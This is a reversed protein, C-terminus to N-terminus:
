PRLRVPAEENDEEAEADGNEHDHVVATHEASGEETMEGDEKKQARGKRGGRGGRGKGRGRTRRGAGGEGEGEAGEAPLPIAKEVNITRGGIEKKDFLSVASDVASESEFSVFGYGLSKRVGRPQEEEEAEGEPKDEGRRRYRRSLYRTIIHANV